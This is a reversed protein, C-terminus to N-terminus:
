FYTQSCVRTQRPCIPSSFRDCSVQPDKLHTYMPFEMSTTHFNRFCNRTLLHCWEKPQGLRVLCSVADSKDQNKMVEVMEPMGAVFTEKWYRIWLLLPYLFVVSVLGFHEFAWWANERGQWRGRWHPSSLWGEALKCYLLVASFKRDPPDRPLGYDLYWWRVNNIHISQSTWAWDLKEPLTSRYGSYSKVSLTASLPDHYQFHSSIWSYYLM